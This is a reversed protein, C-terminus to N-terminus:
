INCTMHRMFIIYGKGGYLDLIYVMDDMATAFSVAAAAAAANRTVCACTCM